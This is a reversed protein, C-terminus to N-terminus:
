GARRMEDATRSRSNRVFAQAGHCDCRGVEVADTAPQGDRDQSGPLRRNGHAVLTAQLQTDTRPRRYVKGCATVREAIMLLFQSVREQASKRGLLFMWDRAGDLDRLVQKLLASELAQHEVLLEEFARGSFCCLELDTAAEAIMNSDDSYPRGVFDSAFQLGVIQHRGDPKANLLKVVGSIIIAFSKARPYEGFVIRGEPVRVRHTIRGLAEAAAEGIGGCLASARAACQECKARSTLRAPSASALNIPRRANIPSSSTMADMWPEDIHRAAGALGGGCPM